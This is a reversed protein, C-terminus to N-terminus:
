IKSIEEGLIALWKKHSHRIRSDIRLQYNWPYKGLTLEFLLRSYVTTKDKSHLTFINAKLLGTLGLIVLHLESVMIFETHAQMLLYVNHPAM